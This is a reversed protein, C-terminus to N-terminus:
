SFSPVSLNVMARKARIADRYFIDVRVHGDTLLTYVASALM